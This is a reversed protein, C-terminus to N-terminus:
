AQVSAPQDEPWWFGVDPNNAVSTRVGVWAACVTLAHHAQEPSDFVQEISSHNRPNRWARLFQGVTYLHLIQQLPLAIEPRMVNTLPLNLVPNKAMNRVRHQAELHAPFSGRRM